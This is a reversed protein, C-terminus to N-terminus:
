HDPDSTAADIAARLRRVRELEVPNSVVGDRKAWTGVIFGNAEPMFQAVTGASVGSGVLVPRRHAAGRAERVTEPNTSAGTAAGTVIVADALGRQVADDVAEAMSVQGPPTGHKVLVDAWIAINSGLSRRYRLTQDARGEILGQDTFMSGTHVNVRIFAAGTAAAIGIASLADNRLVNIGLPLNCRERVALTARTMMAVTHPQVSQKHFPADGFNEIIIGDAGGRQWALADEIAAQEITVLDTAFRPTGPLPLLHVVGILLTRSSEFLKV